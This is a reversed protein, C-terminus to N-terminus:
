WSIKLLFELKDGNNKELHSFLNSLGLNSYYLYLKEEIRVFQAGPIISGETDDVISGTHFAIGSRGPVDQIVYTGNYQSPNYTCKYVGAPICSKFPQNFAWPPELTLCLPLLPDLLVGPTGHKPDSGLRKLHLHKM